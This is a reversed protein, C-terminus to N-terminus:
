RALNHGSSASLAIRLAQDIEAVRFPKRILMLPGLEAARMAQETDGYATVVIVVAQDDVEKLRRLVEVGTAGPLLLDLFVADFRQERVVMCAELGDPVVVVDHGRRVIIDALADRVAADDEVVLIRGKAKRASQAIWDDLLGRSFRWSGGVKTAPIAGNQALKYVTTSSVRLYDAAEKISMLSQM